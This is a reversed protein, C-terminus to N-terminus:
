VRLGPWVPRRRGVEGCGGQECQLATAFAIAANSRGQAVLALVEPVAQQIFARSSGIVQLTFAVNQFVTKNPLLRFDQFVCGMVQRLGPVHRGSLKNVHFKSVKIDGSSPNEEALLLRMFTSKGSGSPGMIATFQNKGFEISVHDLAIVATDDSGYQKFLEVARAAADTM